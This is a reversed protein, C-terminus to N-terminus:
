KAEAKAVELVKQPDLRVRYDPNSYAFRIEGKRNILFVSPVPLVHHKQGDAYAELDVQYKERYTRVMDEPARWAVGFGRMAVATSDSLLQYSLSNKQKTKALEEPRDPSIALIQYGSKKLDAQITQLKGLHMNCFPCWGGRYFIVVAPTKAVERRLMFVKGDVTRLRVDPVKAGVGIPKALEASDAVQPAFPVPSLALVALLPAM